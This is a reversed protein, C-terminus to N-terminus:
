ENVGQVLSLFDTLVRQKLELRRYLEREFGTAYIHHVVTKGETNLRRIRANAQEYSELSYIPAYWIINKARTLTLGHAAVKPHALLVQIENTNQFRHFIDDRAAKGVDGNVSAVDIKKDELMKHLRDQVGRLPVYVIVKDGIEDIMELLADTRDKDDFKVHNGDADYAVGCSVQLLKQFLVAANAATINASAIVAEEKMEKYADLQAKTLDCQRYLFSTEPLDKCESLSFRISPQMVKKCVDLAEHRPVWKFTTVRQMVLDRFATYSRPLTKSGVLKSLAWADTPNQAIPTGTLMWLWPNNEMTFRLFDKFRKSQPSKLATAEDYVILDFDALHDKVTTFGDHNIIAVQLGTSELLQLRRQKTGTIIQFNLHPMHHMIEKGWVPKLTSLPAIILIKKVSGERLLYDAAWLTSISKGTGPANLCLARRNAVLFAATDRQHDMPKFRGPWDYYFLIPPPTKKFGLNKLVHVEEVGHPVATYVEGKVDFTRAHPIIRKLQEHKKTNLVIQKQKEVIIM